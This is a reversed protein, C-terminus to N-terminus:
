QNKSPTLENLIKWIENAIVQHGRSNLHPDNESYVSIGSKELRSLEQRPNIVHIAKNESTRDVISQILPYNNRQILEPHLFQAGLDKSRQFYKQHIQACHPIVVLIINEQKGCHKIFEDLENLLEISDEKRKGYQNISKELYDPEYEFLRKQKKSYAELSYPIGKLESVNKEWPHKHLFQWIRTNSYHLCRFYNSTLWFSNRWIPKHAWNLTPNLDVLDDGVYIQYIVTKSPHDQLRKAAIINTEIIGSEQIGHNNIKVHPLKKRLISVYSEASATFNDGFVNIVETRTSDSSTPNLENFDVQYFDVFQGRFVIEFLTLSVAILVITYFLKKFFSKFLKM